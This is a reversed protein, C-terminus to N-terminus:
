AAGEIASPEAPMPTYVDKLLDEVPEWTGAEAFRVAREVEDTVSTELSMLLADSLDGRAKLRAAFTAIPDRVKWTEVESRERYLEADFM